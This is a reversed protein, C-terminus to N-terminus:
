VRDFSREFPAFRLAEAIHALLRDNVHDTAADFGDHTEIDSIRPIWHVNPCTFWVSFSPCRNGFGRFHSGVPHGAKTTPYPGSREYM